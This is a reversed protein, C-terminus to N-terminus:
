SCTGAQGAKSVRSALGRCSRFAAGGIGSSGPCALCCIMDEQLYPRLSGGSSSQKSPILM